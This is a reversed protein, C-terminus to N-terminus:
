TNDSVVLLTPPNQMVWTRQTNKTYLERIFWVLSPSRLQLCVHAANDLIPQTSTLVLDPWAMEFVCDNQTVLVLYGVNPQNSNLTM